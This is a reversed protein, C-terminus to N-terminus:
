LALRAPEVWDREIGDYVYPLRETPVACEDRLTRLPAVYPLCGDLPFDTAAGGGGFIPSTRLPSIPAPGM